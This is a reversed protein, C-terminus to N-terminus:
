FLKIVKSTDLHLSPSNPLIKIKTDSPGSKVGSTDGKGDAAIAKPSDSIAKFTVTKKDSTTMQVQM